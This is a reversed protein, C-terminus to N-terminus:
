QRIKGSTARHVQFISCNMEIDLKISIYIYLMVKYAM